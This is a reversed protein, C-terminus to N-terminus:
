RLTSPKARGRAFECDRVSLRQLRHGLLRGAIVSQGRRALRRIVEFQGGPRVVVMHRQPLPTGLFITFFDMGFSIHGCIVLLNTAYSEM